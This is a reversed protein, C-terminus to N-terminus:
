YKIFVSYKKIKPAFKFLLEEKFGNRGYNGLNMADNNNVFIRSFNSPFNALGNLITCILIDNNTCNKLRGTTPLINCYKEIIEKEGNNFSFTHKSEFFLKKREDDYELDVINTTLNQINYIMNKNYLYDCLLLISKHLINKVQDINKADIKLLEDIPLIENLAKLFIIVKVEEKRKDLKRNFDNNTSYSNFKQKNRKVGTSLLNFCFIDYTSDKVLIKIWDKKNLKKNLQNTIIFDGYFEQDEDDREFIVECINNKVIIIIYPYSDNIISKFALFDLKSFAFDKSGNLFKSHKFIFDSIILDNKLKIIKNFISLSSLENANKNIIDILEPFKNLQLNEQEDNIFNFEKSFIDPLSLNIYYLESIDIWGPASKFLDIVKQFSTSSEVLKTQIEGNYFKIIIIINKM